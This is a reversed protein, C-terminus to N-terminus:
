LWSTCKSLSWHRYACNEEELLSLMKKLANAQDEDSLRTFNPDVIKLCMSTPSCTEEDAALWDIWETKQVWYDICEFNRQTRLWLAPLGGIGEAWDLASHLDELALM